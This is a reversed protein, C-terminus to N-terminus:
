EKKRYVYTNYVFEKGTEQEDTYISVTIKYLNDMDVVSEIEEKYQFLPHDEGFDGTSTGVQLDQESQIESLRINALFNATSILQSESQLNINHTHLQIVTVLAIAILGMAVIIELLTFGKTSSKKSSIRKM